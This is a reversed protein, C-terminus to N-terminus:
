IRPGVAHSCCILAAQKYRSTPNLLIAYVKIVHRHEIFGSGSFSSQLVM